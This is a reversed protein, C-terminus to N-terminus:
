KSKKYEYYGAIVMIQCIAWTLLHWKAWFSVIACIVGLLGFIFMIAKAQFRDSFMIEALVEM